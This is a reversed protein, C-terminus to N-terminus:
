INYNLEQFVKSTKYFNFGQTHSSLFMEISHILKILSTNEIELSDINDLKSEAILRLSIFLSKSLHFENNKFLTEADTYDESFGPNLGLINILQIQFHLVYNLCNREASNLKTFTNKLIEFLLKNVDREPLSKSLIEIIKYAAELKSFDSIINMFSELYEANSILHLERNEKLYIIANIYNMSEVTGCLKSKSNRAGKVIANIKGYDRTFLTVIKSAEGYKFSKLVFAESKVLSM